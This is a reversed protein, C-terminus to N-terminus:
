GIGDDGNADLLLRILVLSAIGPLKQDFEELLQGESVIETADLCLDHLCHEVVGEQQDEVLFDSRRDFVQEERM